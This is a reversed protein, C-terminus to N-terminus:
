LTDKRLNMVGEITHKLLIRSKKSLPSLTLVVGGKKEMSNHLILQRDAVEVVAIKNWYILQFHKTPRWFPFVEVGLASFILYPHKICHVALVVLGVVLFWPVILLWVPFPLKELDGGFQYVAYTVLCLTVGVALCVSAMILFLTAQATRTFRLEQTPDFVEAM